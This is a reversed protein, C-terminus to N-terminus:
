DKRVRALAVTNKGRKVVAYGHMFDHDTLINQDIPLQQGNIYIAGSELFRRAETKSGALEASLLFEVLSSGVELEETHLEGELQTFDEASLSEYGLAGFLAESIRQVSNAREEGHVIKTVEYALRKQAPRSAANTQMEDAIEDIEDKQLLTFTRLYDIADLDGANLWFQYFKFPSTKNEDLWIAGEESKGFKRGTTKDIILNLTVVDVEAGRTKRILEVGSLCNGWQDSGGLQLTCNYTDYLHLYDFGQLLTYSFEAFSLGSGGDGIRDAVFDRQIMNTISFNKGIDRLFPLLKVDRTWDLNNVMRFKQGDFIKEIQKRACETNHAITEESQLKREEIRGGPDGVLSTSGGTLLIPDYGHRIFTWIFMMAALNGVAQSDASADFGMYFTRKAEDLKKIDNLTTQNLFGRWVLEESLTMGM